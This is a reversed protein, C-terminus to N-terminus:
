RRMFAAQLASPIAASAVCYVPAALPKGTALAGAVAQITSPRIASMDALVIVWGCAESAAVGCALSTGMGDGANPNIVIRLGKAALLQRFAEDGPRLL